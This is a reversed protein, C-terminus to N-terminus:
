ESTLLKGFNMEKDNEKIMLEVKKLIFKEALKKLNKKRNERM